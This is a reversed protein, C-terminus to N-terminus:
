IQIRAYDGEARIWTIDALALPVMGQAIRQAVGYRRM